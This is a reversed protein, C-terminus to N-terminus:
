LNLPREMSTSNGETHDGNTAAHVSVALILAAVCCPGYLAIQRFHKILGPRDITDTNLSCPRRTRKHTLQKPFLTLRTDVCSHKATYIHTLSRCYNGTNGTSTAFHTALTSDKLGITSREFRERGVM